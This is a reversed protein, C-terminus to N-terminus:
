LGIEIPPFMDWTLGVGFQHGSDVFRLNYDDHGYIYSMFFGLSNRLHFTVTTVMRLPNVSPHADAIVEMNEAVVLRRGSPWMYSYSYSLLFRWHGYIAIAQPSYGGVDAVGFLNNHYYVVGFTASHIRTPKRFADLQPIFRYNVMFETLNTSFDGDKRNIMESLNSSPTITAWVSDSQPSGDAGGGILTGGSQGNSYHGSELSYAVLHKESIRYLHQLGLMVKYSPMKVPMSEESYMRFQPRFAFSYGHSFLKGQSIRKKFNNFLTLSLIPHVDFLIKEQKTYSSRWGVTPNDRIPYLQSFVNLNFTRQDPKLVKKVETRVAEFVPNKITDTKTQAWASSAFVLLFLSVQAWRPCLDRLTPSYINTKKRM